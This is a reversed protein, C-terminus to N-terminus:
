PIFEFATGSNYSGGFVTTGYLNGSADLIVSANPNYGDTGNNIFNHLLRETWSGGAHPTLEFMTGNFYHGGANTTGYLNGASDFVLGAYATQGDRLSGFDHLRIETWGGDANPTLEFVTGLGFDGGSVTTSYLNGASDFILAAAPEEGDKGGGFRHPFTETWSGDADPTLEFVTGTGFPGGSITTGYLNGRADFILSSEPQNGDQDNNGFNHLVKETWGGGALPMLEFVSGGEYAGGGATTGYLDGAADFILGAFPAEGDKDGGFSHLLTEKWHGDATPSLEFVTGSNHAGGGHTTGYLNGSADFVLSGLPAFGDGTGFEFHHLVKETWGADASPMLEFATGGQTTGYLNGAGDFILNSFPEDGDNATSGFDHVVIEQQAVARTGTIFTIAAFTAMAMILRVFVKNARM